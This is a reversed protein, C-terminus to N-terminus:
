PAQERLWAALNRASEAPEEDGAVGDDHPSCEISDVLASVSGVLEEQIVGPLRGANVAAIVDAQLREAEQRGRCADGLELRLAVAESRRALSEALPKALQPEPPREEGGCGAALLM